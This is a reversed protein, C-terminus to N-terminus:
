NGQPNEEDDDEFNNLKEILSSIEEGIRPDLAEVGAQTTLDYKIGTADELNHDVVCMKFEYTTAARNMMDIEARKNRGKGLSMSMKAAANQRELKQGYTMKRLQVFGGPCTKLEVKEEPTSSVGAFPV